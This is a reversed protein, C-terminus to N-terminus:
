THNIDITGGPPLKRLDGPGSTIELYRDGTLNEYRILARTSTYMQYKKDVAFAVDVSTDPRLSVNRVTGVNVGAIRVKTGSKLRTADSFIAHYSDSAGFRFQGFIVVLSVGVLIMAVTFVAVKILLRRQGM